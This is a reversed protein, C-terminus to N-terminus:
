PDNPYLEALDHYIAEAKAIQGAGAYAQALQENLGRDKPSGKVLIELSLIATKPLDAALAADAILKHGSSSNPDSNLIQEGINLAELPNNRLTMQGKAVLPSSSAGSFMKKFFGSSAGAKKFQTARLAQRCDYFAPEQVLVQTLLPIAYDFNQQQFNRVGKEYQDRLNKPIQNLSKEPM